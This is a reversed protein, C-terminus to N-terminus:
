RRRSKARMKEIEKEQRAREAEEREAIEDLLLAFWTLKETPMSEIDTTSLHLKQRLMFEGM